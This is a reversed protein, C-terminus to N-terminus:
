KRDGDFSMLKKKREKRRIIIESIFVYLLMILKTLNVIIPLFVTAIIVLLWTKINIKDKNMVIFKTTARATELITYGITDAIRFTIHVISDSINDPTGNYKAKIGKSANMNDWDLISYDLDDGSNIAIFAFTFAILVVFLIIKM